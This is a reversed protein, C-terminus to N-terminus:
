LLNMDSIKETWIIEISDMLVCNLTSSKTGYKQLHM